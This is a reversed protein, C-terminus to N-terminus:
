LVVLNDSRAGPVVKRPIARDFTVFRGGRSVALALLYADTVQKPGHIRSLDLKPSGVLPLDCPWFEHSPHATAQALRRAAESVAVPKPYKPQSLIRVVGNQTIACSAWGHEQERILWDKATGHHVHGSDLLALLFNVDLLARV